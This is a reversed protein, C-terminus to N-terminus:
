WVGFLWFIIGAAAVIFLNDNLDDAATRGSPEGRRVRALVKAAAAEDGADMHARYQELDPDYM